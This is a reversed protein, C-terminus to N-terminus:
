RDARFRFAYLDADRMQFRVRVIRGALGTLQATGQWTVVRGVDDCRIEDCEALTYGALPRRDADQLEVLVGGAASTEVNIELVDGTFVLPRTLLEGGALPASASVFGDLRMRYAGIHATPQASHSQRYILMGRDDAPVIGVAPTNDRAIWDRASPGPRLFAELFLRDYIWGGRTSLLVADSSSVRHGSDAVLEAAQDPPIAPRGPFFRKALGIAIHPARFYPQTGNTYLHEPPTDGFRMPQPPMWTRFDKSTSRSITRFGTYGKGTWTRFYCVYVSEADWWFAVNQSDFMGERILPQAQLRSWRLGDHSIYGMLGTTADGAVAKYRESAPVGPRTDLFPSFNHTTVPDDSLIINNERKGRYEVLGLSPKKWRLGDRSEAYCTVAGQEDGAAPLGRYYMRFLDGDRVVTTYGSFGGEWPNDFRLAEAVRVPHHLRLEAGSLSAILLTDVFLERRDGIFVAEDGSWRDQGVVICPILLVSILLGNM